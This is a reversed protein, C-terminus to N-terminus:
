EDDGIMTIEEPERNPDSARYPVREDLDDLRGELEASLALLGDVEGNTRSLNEEIDEVDVRTRDWKAVRGRLEETERTLADLKSVVQWINADQKKIRAESKSVADLCDDVLRGIREVRFHIAERVDSVHGSLDESKKEEETMRKGLYEFKDEVLKLRDDFHDIRDKEAGGWNDLATTKKELDAFKDELGRIRAHAADGSFNLDKVKESTETLLDSDDMKDPEEGSEFVDEYHDLM